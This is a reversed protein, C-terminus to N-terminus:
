RQVAAADAVNVAFAGTLIRGGRKVQVFLRYSGPKPFAYPFEVMAASSDTRVDIAHSAHSIGLMLQGSPLTDGRDRVRFAEQSAMTVTGMPHLHVYVAGDLRAVVGHGSMGLYPELRAPKGKADRVTARITLEDGVAIAPSGLDVSLTSGDALKFERGTIADGVFWSDDADAQPKRSAPRSAPVTLEGVFTREWGTENVVDGYAHYRGQPLPPLRTAMEPTATTDGPAPAPHLHAMAGADDARVLFLHMLKGHDPMYRSKKGSPLLLRDNAAVHLSDGTLTLALPTPKYINNDYERDVADWWRAGQFIVLALIPVAIAAVRRARARRAADLQEGQELLSEGAAKHVINVLGAVLVIGLAALLVGLAPSMTLTGTAVSAVPVFVNASGRAGDVIVDVSYSGRAMLWLSGEFTGSAGEMRRTEDASPAGKSGARYFVPRISVKQVDDPARVTVRAVGPVVDPPRVVVRVDYPGAKGAFFVDPSGVHASLVPILALALFTCVGRQARSSMTVPAGEDDM